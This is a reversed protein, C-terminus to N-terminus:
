ILNTSSGTNTKAKEDLEIVELAEAIKIGYANITQESQINSISSFQTDVTNVSEEDCVSKEKTTM